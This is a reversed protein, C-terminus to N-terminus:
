AVGALHGRFTLSVRVGVLHGAKPVRHVWERQMGARMVLLSGSALEQRQVAGSAKTDNSKHCFELCRVAGLSAVAIPRAHDMEPSDDAHWGLHDRNASALGRDGGDYRNLFIAEHWTGLLGAINHRLKQVRLPLPHPHYTRRGNGRGYTYPELVDSLFLEGRPADSRREWGTHALLDSLLAAPDPVFDPYYNVPAFM